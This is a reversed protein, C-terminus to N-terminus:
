HPTSYIHRDESVAEKGRLRTHYRPSWTRLVNSNVAGRRKGEYTRIDLSQQDRELDRRITRGQYGFAKTSATLPRPPRM